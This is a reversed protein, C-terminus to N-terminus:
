PSICMVAHQVPFAFMGTRTGWLWLDRSHNCVFQMVRSDRLEWCYEHTMRLGLGLPVVSSLMQSFEHSTLSVEFATERGKREGKAKWIAEEKGPSTFGCRLVCRVYPAGQCPTFASWGGVSSGQWGECKISKGQFVKMETQLFLLLFSSAVM